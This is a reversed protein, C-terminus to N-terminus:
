HRVALALPRLKQTEGTKQRIQVERWEGQVQPMALIAKRAETVRHKLFPKLCEGALCALKEGETEAVVFDCYARFYEAYWEEYLSLPEDLARDRMLHEALHRACLYSSSCRVYATHEALLANSYDACGHFIALLKRRKAGGVQQEGLYGFLATRHVLALATARLAVMQQALRSHASVARMLADHRVEWRSFEAPHALIRRAILAEVPTRSLAAMEVRSESEEMLRAHPFGYQLM